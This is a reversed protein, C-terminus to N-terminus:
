TSRNLSQYLEESFDPDYERVPELVDLVDPEHELEDVDDFWDSPVNYEDEASSSLSFTTTTSHCAETSEEDSFPLESISEGLPTALAAPSSASEYLGLDVPM